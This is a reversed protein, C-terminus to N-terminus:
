DNPMAHSGDNRAKGSGGASAQRIIPQLHQADPRVHGMEGNQRYRVNVLM